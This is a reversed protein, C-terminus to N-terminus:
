ICQGTTLDPPGTILPDILAAADATHGRALMADCASSALVAADNSAQRGTNRAAQLGALAAESAKDFEAM